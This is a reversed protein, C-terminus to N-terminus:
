FRYRQADRIVEGPVALRRVLEAIRADQVTLAGEYNVLLENDGDITYELESVQARLELAHKALLKVTTNSWGGPSNDDSITKLLSDSFENM